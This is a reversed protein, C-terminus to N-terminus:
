CGGPFKKRRLLLLSLLLLLLLWRLLLLRLLLLTELGYLENGNAVVPVLLALGGVVGVVTGLTAAERGDHVGGNLHGSLVRLDAAGCRRVGVVAVGDIVAGFVVFIHVGFEGFGRAM